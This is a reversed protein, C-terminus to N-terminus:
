LLGFRLSPPSRLPFPFAFSAIQQRFQTVMAPVAQDFRGSARHLLNYGPPNPALHSTIRSGCLAAFPAGRPEIWMKAVSDRASATHHSDYRSLKWGFGWLFVALGLGIFGLACPRLKRM